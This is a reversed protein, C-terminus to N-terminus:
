DRDKRAKIIVHSAHWPDLRTMLRELVPPLPYYGVAAIREVSFGQAELLRELSRCAAVVIHRYMTPEGMVEGWGQEVLSQCTRERLTRVTGFDTQSFHALHPGSFPQFGLLLAFINHWSALNPTSIVAYGGPKLVRYVEGVFGATEVLHELVDSVMVVDVQSGAMPIPRNLDAQMVWLGRDVAERAVVANLEIGAVARLGKADARERANAGAHCGCDLMLAQNDQELCDLMARQNRDAVHGDVYQLYRMLLDRLRM